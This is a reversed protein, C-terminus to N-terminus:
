QILNPSESCLILLVIAMLVITLLNYEIIFIVDM